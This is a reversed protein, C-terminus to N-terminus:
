CNEVNYRNRKMLGALAYTQQASRFASNELTSFIVSANLTSGTVFSKKLAYRRNELFGFGCHFEFPRIFLLPQIRLSKEVTHHEQRKQLALSPQRQISTSYPQAVAFGTHLGRAHYLHDRYPRFCRRVPGRNWALIIQFRQKGIIVLIFVILAGREM